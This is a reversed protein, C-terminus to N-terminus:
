REGDVPGFSDAIQSFLGDAQHRQADSFEYVFDGASLAIVTYNDFGIVNDFRYGSAEGVTLPAYGGIADKFLNPRQQGDYFQELALNEPNPYAYVILEAPEEGASKPPETLFFKALYPSDSLIVQSWSSPYSFEYGGPLSGKTLAPTVTPVTTTSQTPSPASSPVPTFTSGTTATAQAAPAVEEEGGPSAVIVVGAVGATGLLAVGAIAWFPRRVSNMEGTEGLSDAKELQVSDVV